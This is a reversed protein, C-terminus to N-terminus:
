IIGACGSDVQHQTLSSTRERWETREFQASRALEYLEALLRDIAHASRYVEGTETLRIQAMVANFEDNV